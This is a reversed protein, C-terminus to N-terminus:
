RCFWFMVMLFCFMVLFEEVNLIDFFGFDGDLDLRIFEYDKERNFFFLNELIESFYYM